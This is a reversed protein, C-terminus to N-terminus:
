SNRTVNQCGVVATLLRSRSKKDLSRALTAGLRLVLALKAASPLFSIGILFTSISRNLMADETPRRSVTSNVCADLSARVKSLTPPHAALRHEDTKHCSPSSELERRSHSR